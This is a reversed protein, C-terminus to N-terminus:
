DLHCELAFINRPYTGLVRKHAISHDNSARRRVGVLRVVMMVMMMVVMVVMMIMVMVAVVMTMVTGFILIM